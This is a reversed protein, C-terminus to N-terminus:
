DVNSSTIDRETAAYAQQIYNELEALEIRWQGRGGVRIARLEGSRVLAYAQSKSIHLVQEVHELPVFKRELVHQSPNSAAPDPHEDTVPDELTPRRPHTRANPAHLRQAM